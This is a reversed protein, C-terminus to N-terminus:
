PLLKINKYGPRVVANRDIVTKEDYDVFTINTVICKSLDDESQIGSEPVDFDIIMMGDKLLRYSKKDTAPEFYRQLDYYVAHDIQYIAEASDGVKVESFDDKTLTDSVFYWEVVNVWFSHDNTYKDTYEFVSYVHVPMVNEEKVSTIAFLTKSNIRQLQTDFADCYNDLYVIGSSLPVMTINGDADKRMISSMQSTFSYLSKPSEDTNVSEDERSEMYEKAYDRSDSHCGVSFIICSVIFICTTIQVLKM